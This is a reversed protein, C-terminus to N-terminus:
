DGALRALVRLWARRERPLHGGRRIRVAALAAVRAVLLELREEDKGARERAAAIIDREMARLLDVVSMSPPLGAVWHSVVLPLVAALALAYSRNDGTLQLQSGLVSVWAVGALAVGTARLARALYYTVDEIWLQM